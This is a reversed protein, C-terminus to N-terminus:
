KTWKQAQFLAEIRPCLESAREEDETPVRRSRSRKMGTRTVTTLMQLPLVLKLPAAEAEVLTNNRITRKEPSKGEKVRRSEEELQRSL